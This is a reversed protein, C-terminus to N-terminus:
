RPIPFSHPHTSPSSTGDVEIVNRERFGADLEADSAQVVSQMQARTYRKGRARGGEEEQRPRKTGRMGDWQTGRLLKEVRGLRPVSPQLELVEHVTDQIYLDNTVEDPRLFLMSNSVTITRLSFTQTPTCIVADDSPTGKMTLRDGPDAADTLAHSLVRLTGCMHNGM